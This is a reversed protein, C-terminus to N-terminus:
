LDNLLNSITVSIREYSIKAYVVVKGNSLVGTFQNKKITGCLWIQFFIRSLIKKCINNLTNEKSYEEIKNQLSTHIQPNENLYHNQLIETM